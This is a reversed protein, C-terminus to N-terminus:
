VARLSNVSNPDPDFFVRPQNIASLNHTNRNDVTNANIVSGMSRRQM